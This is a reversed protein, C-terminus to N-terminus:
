YTDGHGTSPTFDYPTLPITINALQFFCKHLFRVIDVIEIDMTIGM